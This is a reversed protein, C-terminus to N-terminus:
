SAVLIIKGANGATFDIGVARGTHSEAGLGSFKYASLASGSQFFVLKEFPLFSGVAAIIAGLAMLAGTWPVSVKKGDPPPPAAHSGAPQGTQPAYDATM